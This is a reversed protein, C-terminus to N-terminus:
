NDQKIMGGEIQDGEVSLLAPVASDNEAEQDTIGEEEDDVFPNFSYDEAKSSDIKVQEQDTDPDRTQKKAGTLFKQYPEEEEQSLPKYVSEELGYTAVLDEWKTGRIFEFTTFVTTYLCSHCMLLILNVSIVFGGESWPYIYALMHFNGISLMTDAVVFMGFLYGHGSIIGSIPVILVCSLPLTYSLVLVWIRAHYPSFVRKNPDSQSKIFGYDVTQVLIGLLMVAIHHLLIGYLVVGIATSFVYLLQSRYNQLELGSSGAPLLSSLYIMAACLPPWRPRNGGSIKM